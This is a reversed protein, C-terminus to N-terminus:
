GRFLLSPPPIPFAFIVRCHCQPVRADCYVIACPGIAKYLRTNSLLRFLIIQIMKTSTDAMKCVQSEKHVKKECIAIMESSVDIFPVTAIQLQSSFTVSAVTKIGSDVKSKSKTHEDQSSHESPSTPM